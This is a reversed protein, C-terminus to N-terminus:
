IGFVKVNPSSKVRGPQTWLHTIVQGYVTYGGKHIANQAILVSIAAAMRCLDAM